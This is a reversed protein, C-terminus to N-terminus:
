LGEKPMVLSNDDGYGYSKGEAAWEKNLESTDLNTTNCKPCRMDSYISATPVGDDAHFCHSCQECRVNTKDSM